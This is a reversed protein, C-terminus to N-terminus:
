AGEGVNLTPSPAQLAPNISQKGFEPSRRRLGIARYVAIRVQTLKEEEIM